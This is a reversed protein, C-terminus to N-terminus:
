KKLPTLFIFQFQTPLNTSQITCLNNGMFDSLFSHESHSFQGAYASDANGETGQEPADNNQVMADDSATAHYPM